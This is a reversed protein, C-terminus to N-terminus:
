HICELMKINESARHLMVWLNCSKDHDLPVVGRGGRLEISECLNVTVGGRGCRAAFSGHLDSFFFVRGQYIVATSFPFFLVWMVGPKSFFFSLKACAGASRFMCPRALHSRSDKSISKIFDDRHWNWCSTSDKNGKGGDDSFWWWWWWWWWWMAEHSIAQGDQDVGWFRVDVYTEPYSTLMSVSVAASVVVIRADVVVMIAVAQVSQHGPYMVCDVAVELLAYVIVEEADRSIKQCWAIILCWLKM